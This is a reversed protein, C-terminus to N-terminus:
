KKVGSQKRLKEIAGRVQKAQPADPNENLFAQLQEIAKHPEGKLEYLNALYIRAIPAKSLEFSRKLDTEAAAYDGTMTEGLGLYLYTASSQKGMEVVRRLQSLAEPYKQQQILTAGLGSLPEARDPKIEKAKIYSAAADDFRRLKLYQDAMALHAAYFAPAARIAQEFLKLAEEPKDDSARKAGKKYADRAQQPLSPDSVEASVTDAPQVSKGALPRLSINQTFSQPASGFASVEARVRTTEFTRGDGEAELQYVGRKLGTFSFRGSLDTFTEYVRVGNFTLTVRVSLSPAGGTPLLVKGQLTNASQCFAYQFAACVWICAIAFRCSRVGTM